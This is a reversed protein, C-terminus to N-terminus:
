IGIGSETIYQYHEKLLNNECTIDDDLYLIYDYKAHQWGFNRAEPLGRFSTVHYYRVFSYQKQYELIQKDEKDSQDVILIEFPYEFVQKVLCDLTQKLFDTRNLTPIIVSIGNM